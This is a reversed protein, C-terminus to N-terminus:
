IPVAGLKLKLILTQLHLKRNYFSDANKLIDRFCIICFVAFDFSYRDLWSHFEDILDVNVVLDTQEKSVKVLDYLLNLAISSAEVTSSDLFDPPELNDENIFKIESILSWTKNRLSLYDGSAVEDAMKFSGNAIRAFEENWVNHKKKLYEEIETHSLSNFELMVCRSYLTYPVSAYDQATLIFIAGDKPDELTKLLISASPGYLKDANNIIFVVSKAERYSSLLDRVQKVKYSDADPNIEFIDYGIEKALERAASAKGSGEPGCFLMAPPLNSLRSELFKRVPEQGIIDM